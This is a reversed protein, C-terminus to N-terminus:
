GDDWQGKQEDLGREKITIEPHDLIQALSVIGVLEMGDMVPVTTQERETLRRVAKRVTLTPEVAFDPAHAVAVVRIEDPPPDAQYVAHLIDSETIIGGPNGESDVVIAYDIEEVLMLRITERLSREAGVLPPDTDMVHRVLM